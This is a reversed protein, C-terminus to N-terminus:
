PCGANAAMLLSSTGTSAKLATRLRATPTSKGSLPGEAVVSQAEPRDVLEWSEGVPQWGPLSRGLRTALTRGGWIREQYLPNFTIPSM